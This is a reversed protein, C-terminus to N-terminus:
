KEFVKKLTKLVHDTAEKRTLIAPKGKNRRWAAEREAFIRKYVRRKEQETMYYELNFHNMGEGEGLNARSRKKLRYEAYRGM